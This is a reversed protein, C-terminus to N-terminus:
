PCRDVLLVSLFTAHILSNRWSVSTLSSHQEEPTHFWPYKGNNKCFCQWLELEVELWGHVWIHCPAFEEQYKCFILLLSCAACGLICYEEYSGCQAGLFECLHTVPWSNHLSNSIWGLSNHCPRLMCHIEVSNTEGDCCQRGQWQAKDANSHRAYTAHSRDDIIGLDLVVNYKKEQTELQRLLHPCQIVGHHNFLLKSIKRTSKQIYYRAPKTCFNCM